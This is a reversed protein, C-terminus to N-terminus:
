KTAILVNGYPHYTATYTYNGNDTRGTGYVTCGAPIKVSIEVANEWESNVCVGTEYVIDTNQKINHVNGCWVKNTYTCFDPCFVGLVKKGVKRSLEQINIYQTVEEWEMSSLKKADPISIFRTEAKCLKCCQPQTMTVRGRVVSNGFTRRIMKKGAGFVLTPM